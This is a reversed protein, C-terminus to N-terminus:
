ATVWDRILAVVSEPVVDDPRYGRRALEAELSRRGARQATVTQAWGDVLTTLEEAAEIQEAMHMEGRAEGACVRRYDCFRCADGGWREGKHVAPFFGAETLGFLPLLLAALEAAEPPRDAFRQGAGRDSAFFYGSRRVQAGDLLQPLAAAYLAWQLNRGGSLLDAQRYGWTSGTKYDWIEFLRGGEVHDVRDIRGRLRFSVESSLSVEVGEPGGFDWEFAHPTLAPDHQLRQAEAHLFIRAARQIRREDNRFAAELPAPHHLRAQEIAAAGM